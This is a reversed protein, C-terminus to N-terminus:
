DVDRNAMSLFLDCLERKMVIKDTMINDINLTSEEEVKLVIHHVYVQETQGIRVARGVAQDMSAATWWPGMFVIRDCHQLNLGVGGAKLQVLLIEQQCGTLPEKSVSILNKKEAETLTGNYIHCKRVFSCDLMFDKLIRMESHFHTFVIWRHPVDSDMKILDKLFDFKTSSGTWDQRSYKSDKINKISKKRAEIFVQPHISLQRLRMILKFYQTNDADEMELAKWQRKIIGQVGEYFDAEEETSFDLSHTTEIAKLPMSKLDSMRRCMVIKNITSPNLMEGGKKMFLSVGLLSAITNANKLSNIIPTATLFWSHKALITNVFKYGSTRTNGLRHAEDCILRGWERRNVLEPRRLAREYNVIYFQVAGYNPKVNASPVWIPQKKHCRYVQFGCKQATVEWQDLTCLPAFLLTSSVRKMKMLSLMQITKGLGMEDCLMGGYPFIEEKGMMWEVGAVQHPQYEFDTWLSKLSSM